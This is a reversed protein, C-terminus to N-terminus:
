NLKHSISNSEEEQQIITDFKNVNLYKDSFEVLTPPIEDELTIVPNLEFQDSSDSDM